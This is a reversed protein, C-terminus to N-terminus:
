DASVPRRPWIRMAVEALKRGREEIAAEDWVDRSLIDASLKMLTHTALEPRKFTWAQNSLQPNMTPTVLTLNGIRDIHSQRRQEALQRDTDNSASIGWHERWAHPMVHEITLSDYHFSAREAAPDEARLM